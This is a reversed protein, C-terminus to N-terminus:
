ATGGEGGYRSRWALPMSGAHDEREWNALHNVKLAVEAWSEGLCSKVFKATTRTIPDLDYQPVILRHHDWVFRDRDCTTAPSKPTCAKLFFLEGGDEDRPGITLEFTCEFDDPDDPRYGHPNLDPLVTINIAEVKARVLRSGIQCGRAGM